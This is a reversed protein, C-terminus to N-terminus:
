RQLKCLSPLKKLKGFGWTTFGALGILIMLPILSQWIGDMKMIAFNYLGHLAVAVFFGLAFIKKQNKQFYFSLALFFGLAGSALTHLFTAGIFRSFSLTLSESFDFTKGIPSLVLLNELAAFGLASIILYLMIDIPEDLEASGLVFNRVVLYKLLEELLAIVLFINLITLLISPQFFLKTIKLAGIELLATLGAALIGLFFVKLVMKNSEPHQDKRLYFLLWIISPALAFVIYLPYTM